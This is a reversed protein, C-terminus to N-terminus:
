ISGIYEIFNENEITELACHMDYRFSQKLLFYITPWAYLASYIYIPFVFSFITRPLELLLNLFIYTHIHPQVWLRFSVELARGNDMYIYKNAKNIRSIKQVLLIYPSHPQQATITLKQIIDNSSRGDCFSISFIEFTKHQSNNTKFHTNSLTLSM